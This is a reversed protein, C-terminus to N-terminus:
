AALLQILEPKRLKSYGRFGRRKAEAKLQKVTGLGRRKFTLEAAKEENMKAVMRDICEDGMKGCYDKYEQELELYAAELKALTKKSKGHYNYYKRSANLYASQLELYTM